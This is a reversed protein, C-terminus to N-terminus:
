DADPFTSFPDKAFLIALDSMSGVGKAAYEDGHARWMSRLLEDSYVAVVRMTDLDYVVRRKMDIDWACHLMKCGRGSKWPDTRM